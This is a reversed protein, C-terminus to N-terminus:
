PILGAGLTKLRAALQGKADDLRTTAEGARITIFLNPFILHFHNDSMQIDTLGSVDLGKGTLTDRTARQLLLRGTVHGLMTVYPNEVARIIRATMEAEPLTFVNHVSAVVYDLEALLDDLRTVPASPPTGGPGITPPTLYGSNVLDNIAGAAEPRLIFEENVDGCEIPM